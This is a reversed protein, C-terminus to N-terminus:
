RRFVSGCPQPRGPCGRDFLMQVRSLTRRFSVSAIGDEGILSTYKMASLYGTMRQGSGSRRTSTDAQLAETGDYIPYIVLPFAPITKNYPCPKSQGSQVAIDM